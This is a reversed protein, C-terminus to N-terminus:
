GVSIVAPTPTSSVVQYYAFSSEFVYTENAKVDVTVYPETVEVTDLPEDAGYIQLSTAEAPTISIPNSRSYTDYDEIAQDNYAFYYPTTLDIDSATLVKNPADVQLLDQNANTPEAEQVGCGTAVIAVAILLFKFKM